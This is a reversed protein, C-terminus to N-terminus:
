KSIYRKKFQESLQDIMEEILAKHCPIEEWQKLTIYQRIYHKDDMVIVYCVNNNEKRTDWGVCVEALINPLEAYYNTTKGDLFQQLEDMKQRSKLNKILEDDKVYENFEKKTLNKRLWEYGKLVRDILSVDDKASEVLRYWGDIIEAHTM